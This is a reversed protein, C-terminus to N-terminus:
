PAAVLTDSLYNGAFDRYRQAPAGIFEYGVEALFAFNASNITLNRINDSGSVENVAM